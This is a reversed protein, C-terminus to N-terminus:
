RRGESLNRIRKLENLIINNKESVNQIHTALNRNTESMTDIIKTLVSAFDHIEKTLQDHHEIYRDFWNPDDTKRRNEGGQKKFTKRTWEGVWTSVIQWVVLLFVIGVLMILSNPIDIGQWQYTLNNM